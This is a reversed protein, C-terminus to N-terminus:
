TEHARCGPVYPCGRCEAGAKPVPDAARERVIGVRTAVWALAEPLAAAVDLEEEVIEGALLDAVVLRLARGGVWAASRM